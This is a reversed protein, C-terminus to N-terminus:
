SSWAQLDNKEKLKIGASGKAGSGRRGVVHSVPEVPIHLRWPQGLGAAAGLNWPEPIEADGCQPKISPPTRIEAHHSGPSCSGVVVELVFSM